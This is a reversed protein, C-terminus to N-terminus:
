ICVKEELIRYFYGNYSKGTALAKNLSKEGIKLEQQLHHKSRFESLLEGNETFKGIGSKYLCLEVINHRNLFENKVEESLKEFLIYFYGDCEKSNKVYNDLHAVSNYNNCMSATKRDLYVSVVQSKDLNTKAIYGLNYEKSLRKTVQVSSLDDPDLDREILDWRFDKYITNEKCAKTLSSRPIKWKTCVEAINEYVKVLTMNEPNIQQVRPGVSPLLQNFNNTTNQPTNTQLEERILKRITDYDVNAPIQAKLKLNENELQLKQIQLKLQEETETNSNDYTHLNENIINVVMQYTLEEGVMFLENEKEHDKLERYRYQSLKSHVLKELQKSNKVIFCDLLLCEPYKKKHETYRGLVGARSEGIKLIYRNEDVTNVKIIYILSCEKSYERLLVEQKNEIEINKKITIENKKRADKILNFAWLQFPKAIPKRSVFLMKYLGQETLFWTDQLGGRTEAKMLVKFDDDLNQLTDRMRSIALLNGIDSAKFLPEDFTGYITVNLNEFRQSILENM